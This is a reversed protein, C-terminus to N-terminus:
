WIYCLVEGGVGARWANEGTMVGKSTSLIAFGLGGKVRPINERRTYIRRGPKSVRKMGTLVPTQDETYKIEIRMAQRGEVTVLEYGRVYGEEELIRAIDGKIRSYPVQVNDHRAMIANRMRTLMDAIPDSLTVKYEEEVV